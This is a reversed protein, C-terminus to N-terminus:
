EEFLKDFCKECMGSIFFEKKGAASYCNPLAPERCDICKGTMMAERATMGYLGKSMSDKLKQLM